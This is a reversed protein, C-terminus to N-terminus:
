FRIRELRRNGNKDSIIAFDQGWKLKEPFIKEDPKAIYISDQQILRKVENTISFQTKENPKSIEYDKLSGDEKFRLKVSGPHSVFIGSFQGLDDDKIQIDQIFSIYLITENDEFEYDEIKMDKVTMLDLYKQINNLFADTENGQLDIPLKIAKKQENNPIM